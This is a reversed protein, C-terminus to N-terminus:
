QPSSTKNNSVFPVLRVESSAYLGVVLFLSCLEVFDERLVDRLIHQGMRMVLRCSGLQDFPHLLLGLEDNFMPALMSLGVQHIGRRCWWGRGDSAFTPPAGSTVVIVIFRFFDSFLLGGLHAVSLEQGKNTSTSREFTAAFAAAPFTPFLSSAGAVSM